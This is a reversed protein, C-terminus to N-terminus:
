DTTDNNNLQKVTETISVRQNDSIDIYDSFKKLNRVLPKFFYEDDSHHLWYDSLKPIGALLSTIIPYDTQGKLMSQIIIPVQQQEKDILVLDRFTIGEDNSLAKLIYYSYNTEVSEFRNVKRFAEQTYFDGIYKSFKSHELYECIQNIIFFRAAAQENVLRNALGKYRALEGSDKSVTLNNRLRGNFRKMDYSPNEYHLASAIFLEKLRSETIM